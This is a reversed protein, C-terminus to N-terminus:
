TVRASNFVITGNCTGKVAYQPIKIKWYTANTSNKIESKRQRINMHMLKPGKFRGSLNFMNDYTDASNNDFHMRNVSINGIRCEMSLNNEVAPVKTSGYGYLNLDLNMNGTNTVNIIKNTSTSGLSLEGFEVVPPVNLSYLPNIKADDRSSNYAPQRNLNATGNDWASMNCWWTGNNAFFWVNFSCSFTKNYIGSRVLICSNNSYHENMDNWQGSRNGTYFLTANCAIIDDKGNYDVVTGNCYVKRYWGSVLDIENVPSATWDDVILGVVKPAMNTVNVRAAISDNVYTSAAELTNISFLSVLSFFAVYLLVIACTWGVILKYTQNKM